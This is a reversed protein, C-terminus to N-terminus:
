NVWFILSIGLAEPNNLHGCNFVELKLPFKENGIGCPLPPKHAFIKTM